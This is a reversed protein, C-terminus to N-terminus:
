RSDRILAHLAEAIVPDGPHDSEYARLLGRAEPLRGQKHYTAALALTAGARNPEVEVSLDDTIPIRISFLVSKKQFNRGLRSAGELAARLWTEAAHLRDQKLALLGATYAGDPLHVAGRVHQLAERDNGRTLARCTQMLADRPPTRRSLLGRTVSLARDITPTSGM